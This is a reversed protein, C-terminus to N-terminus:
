LLERCFSKYPYLNYESVELMSKKHHLVLWFLFEHMVHSVRTKGVVERRLSYSIPQCAGEGVIVEGIVLQHALVPSGFLLFPFFPRVIHLCDEM